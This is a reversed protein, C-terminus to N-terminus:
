GGCQLYSTVCSGGGAGMDMEKGRYLAYEYPRKQDRGTEAAAATTTTTAGDVGYAGRIELTDVVPEAARLGRNDTVHLIYQTPGAGLAKADKGLSAGAFIAEPPTLDM